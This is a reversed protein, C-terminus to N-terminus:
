NRNIRDEKVAEIELRAMKVTIRGKEDPPYTKSYLEVAQRIFKNISSPPLQRTYPLWTTRFWGALKDPSDCTMTKPILELRVPTFGATQLWTAYQDPAYFGYPFGFGDFYPKWPRRATLSDVITIFDAANGKGGMQLLIRGGPNLAAHMCALVPRHDIVWHLAANSFIIDVPFAPSFNRADQQEFTLNSHHTGPFNRRALRIMESSSDIGTVHGFPLKSALKATIKGDGCGIDLVSETGSLNLRTMLEDAWQFQASSNKAYDKANWKYSRPKTM